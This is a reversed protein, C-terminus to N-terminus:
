NTKDWEKDIIQTTSQLEEGLRGTEANFKYMRKSMKGKNKKVDVLLKGEEPTSLMVVCEPDQFTSSSGKMDHLGPSRQQTSGPAHIKRIHHVIFLIIKNEIAVTKLQQLTNAIEVDERKQSKRVMYDLHDVIVVKTNLIKRAKKILEPTEEATPTAFYLPLGVCEKKIKDILEFDAMALDGDSLNFKTQIFRSGVVESGREFPLVLIPIQKELLRQALNLAYSTKGVNSDGSIMILWDQGIKVDPLGELTLRDDKGSMMDGLIDNITKFQYRFFPRAETLLKYFEERTHKMFYENADKIGFPYVVDFCKEFGVRGAFVMGAERGPKDNDYAIYVKPVRYLLELWVGYSDKGSAPSVVNKIGVQWASMCDFEGETVLVGGKKAGADIGQENFLWSEAGAEQIYKPKDGPEIFRYKINILEGNKYYPIAIAHRSSDYGLNFHEITEQTLNRAIRLYERATDSGLLALRFKEMKEPSPKHYTGGVAQGLSQIKESLKFEM